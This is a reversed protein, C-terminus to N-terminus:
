RNEGEAAAKAKGGNKQSYGLSFYFTAGRDLEAEAWIQGGHKKVIRQVTALGVGTGEFDEARHLRQFVGFLKDSYKMSFGVGNDRVYLVPNGQRESQGIEIVAEQRPRTFKVANLLLNQFVQRVLGADCDCYGLEGIKWAINRGAMEPRLDAIVQDVVSRLGVVQLALERRGVRALNLLEDVLQGMRRTSEDIRRLHHLADAPLGESFDDLLIRAFGSIHRLPARLDHSVSYTFAELEKNAAELQGTREAVRQELEANLRRVEEEPQKRDTIDRVIGFMTSTNGSMERQADGCAWIWRMEGDIRVIRCEFEWRKRQRLADQFSEQVRERDDAYVHSLFKDFTWEPELSSYGFIQDHLLSRSARLTNLDMQWDGLKGAEMSFRTKAVNMRLADEARKRETIDETFIVIGGVEGASQYWPRTEWRIWHETGDLRVFRDSEGRLVEGALGRQHVEKWQQPIEPFVGYHSTGSVAREDLGYVSLWRQSVQIYNMDRDFMALAAPAHEIFLQLRLQSERLAEDAKLRDSIDRVIVTFTKKGGSEFQSISAEIPIEAGDSRLAWVAGLESMSRSTVGTDAFKRIHGSHSGRFRDPVFKEIPQGLADAATCRFIKQAANNFMVIRQQEDISVIADMASDFIGTLRGESERLEATRQEVREELAINLVRIEELLKEGQKIERATITGALLVLTLGALASALMFAQTENRSAVARHRRESLFRGEEARMDRITSRVLDMQQQGDQFFTALPLKKGQQRATITREATALRDEVQERLKVLRLQQQMNDATLSTLAELDNEITQKGNRYPVLFAENGSTAYGDSGTEIETVDALTAEIAMQVDTSHAIWDDDSSLQQMSRWATLFGLSTLMVGLTVGAWSWQRMRSEITSTDRSM